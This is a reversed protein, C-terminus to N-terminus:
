SMLWKCQGFMVSVVRQIEDLSHTGLSLNALQVCACMRVCWFSVRQTYLNLSLYWRFNIVMENIFESALTM